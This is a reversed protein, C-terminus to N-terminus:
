RVTFSSRADYTRAAAGPRPPAAQPPPVAAFQMPTGSTPQMINQQARVEAAHRFNMPKRAAQTPAVKPLSSRSAAEAAQEKSGWLYKMTDPEWYKIQGRGGRNLHIPGGVNYGSAMPPVAGGNMMAVNEAHRQQLGHNNMAEVQPGYMQSAERNLVFEGETLMAPVTDKNTPDNLDPVPGQPLPVNHLNATGRWDVMANWMESNGAKTDYTIETSNGYRDTQKMKQVPAHGRPPNNMNNNM